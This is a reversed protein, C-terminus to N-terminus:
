RSAPSSARSPSARARDQPARPELRAAARLRGLLAGDARPVLRAAPRAPGQQIQGRGAPRALDVVADPGAHLLRVDLDAGRRGRHPRVPPLLPRHHRGHLGGAPVGRRHLLHHRAGGPRNGAHGRARGDHHDAGLAVHRVINERVVIADDILLGVSLSLAMLTLVNLTFGFAYIFLFTGILAIPLTLGTIM